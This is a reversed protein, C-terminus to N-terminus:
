KTCVYVEGGGVVVRGGIGGREGGGTSQLIIYSFLM